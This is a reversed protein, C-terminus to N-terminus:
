PSKATKHMEYFTHGDEKTENLVGQETLRRASRYVDLESEDDLAEALHERAVRAGKFRMYRIVKQDVRLSEQGERNNNAAM